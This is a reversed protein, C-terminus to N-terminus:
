PDCAPQCSQSEIVLFIRNAPVAVLGLGGCRLQPPSEGTVHRSSYLLAYNFTQEM